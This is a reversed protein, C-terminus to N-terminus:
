RDSPTPASATPICAPVRSSTRSPSALARDGGARRDDVIFAGLGLVKRGDMGQAPSSICKRPPGVRGQLVEGFRQADIGPMDLRVVRAAMEPEREAVVVARESSKLRARPWRGSKMEDSIPRVMTKQRCPSKARPMRSASSTM